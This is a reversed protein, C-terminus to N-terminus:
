AARHATNIQQRVWVERIEISAVCVPLAKDLDELRDELLTRGIGPGPQQLASTNRATGDLRDLFGKGIRLDGRTPHKTFSRM